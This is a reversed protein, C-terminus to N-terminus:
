PNGTERVRAGGRKKMRGGGRMTMGAVRFEMKVKPTQLMLAIGKEDLILMRFDGTEFRLM